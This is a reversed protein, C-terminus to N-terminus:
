RAEYIINDIYEIRKVKHQLDNYYDFDGGYRLGWKAKDVDAFPIIGNPTGINAMMIINQDPVIRNQGNKTIKMKAIYLCEPDKCKERLKDFSGAIYIDDDDANMIYTTQPKLQSQYKNALGHSWNGMPPNEIMINRACKFDSFWSHNFGSKDHAEQGDFVLTIADGEKLENKLSDLLEKLQVRGSSPIFIHFTPINGGEQNNLMSMHRYNVAKNEINSYDPNQYCLSPICVYWKDKSLIKMYSDIAYADKNNVDKELNAIGEKINNLLTNYYEKNVIYAVTSQSTYMRLTDKDYETQTSGLKIVDYPNKILKEFIPYAKEINVWKMDDEVILVNKWGNKIAMELAALHSKSCGLAGSKDDKHAELRIIKDKDFVSLENEISLKRDNRHELNIYIVKEIYDNISKPPLNNGGRQKFTKLYKGWVKMAARMGKTQYKHYKARYYMRTALQRANPKGRLRRISNRAGKASGYHIIPHKPANKANNFLKRTKM